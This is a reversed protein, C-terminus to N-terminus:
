VEEVNTLIKKFIQNSEDLIRGKEIGVYKLSSLMEDTVQTYAYYDM